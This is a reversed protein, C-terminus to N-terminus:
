EATAYGPEVLAACLFYMMELSSVMGMCPDRAYNIHM